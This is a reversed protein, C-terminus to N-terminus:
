RTRSRRFRTAPGRVWGLRGDYLVPATPIQYHDNDATQAERKFFTRWVADLIAWAICVAGTATCATVAAGM